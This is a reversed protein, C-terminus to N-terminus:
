SADGATMSVVEEITTLGASVKRAGDERLTRMGQARARERLRSSGACEHIMQSIEDNLVLLEFLGLRGRYGTGSCAPCGAGRMITKRGGSMPELGLWDFEAATPTAPRRCQGCIKRVLRQAVVARLAASLLFPKVGLDTLRAVAGTADTTHLTSFVLHGTLAAHLAIEATERDRIEGIMITNPAQRLMARLASGFTMGAAQRVPVQNIGNLQYEVPDEVTIIKHDVRNLQQLCGYLTTTKGSGTPGTVLVLGHPLAILQELIARDDEMLGLESLGPRQEKQDLIRLVISEGHLTPLSSARLDLDRGDRRIQIRGDQPLRKEAISINAMIKLRSIIARQQQKPLDPMECLVGDVRCRVRFRQELPELHIDSARRLIAEQILDHVLTIIGADGDASPAASRINRTQSLGRTDTDSETKQAFCRDIARAIQGAPALRTEIALGLLHRLADVREVDLPDSLAVTLLEGQLAIPVLGYAEALERPVLGRVEDPIELTNLDVTNLGWQQAL